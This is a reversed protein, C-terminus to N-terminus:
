GGHRVEPVPTWDKIILEEQKQAIRADTEPTDEFAFVDTDNMIRYFKEGCKIEKGAYKVFYVTAGTRPFKEVDYMDDFAVEGVDVLEGISITDQEARNFAEVMVIGGATKEEPPEIAVIIKAGLARVKSIDDAYERM